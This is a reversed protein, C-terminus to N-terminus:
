LWLSAATYSLHYRSCHGQNMERCSAHLPFVPAAESSTALFNYLHSMNQEIVCCTILYFAFTQFGGEGGRRFTMHNGSDPMVDM